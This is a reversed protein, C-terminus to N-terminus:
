RLQKTMGGGAAELAPIVLESTVDSKGDRWTASDGVEGDADDHARKPRVDVCEVQAQEVQQESGEYTDLVERDSGRLGTSDGLGPEREM